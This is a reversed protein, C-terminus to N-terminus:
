RRARVIPITRVQTTTQTGVQLSVRVEISRLRRLAARQSRPFTARLTLSEGGRVVARRVVSVGRGAAELRLTGARGVTIAAGVGKTRLHEYSLGSAGFITIDALPARSQAVTFTREATATGGCDGTATVKVTAQGAAFRHSVSPGTATTGDGLDWRLTGTACQSLGTSAGFDVDTATLTVPQASEAGAVPAIGGLSVTPTRLNRVSAIQAPTLGALRASMPAADLEQALALGAARTGALTGTAGDSTIGIWSVFSATEGPGLTLNRWGWGFQDPRFSSFQGADDLPKAGGSAVGYLVLDAARSAGPQGWVSAVAPKAVTAFISTDATVAWRDAASPVTTGSSNAVFGTAFGTGLKGVTVPLAGNYRLDGVIVNTTVPQSGPNTVTDLFRAGRADSPVFIRRQVTVGGMNVQAFALQRGGLESTCGNIDTDSYRTAYSPVGSGVFLDGWYDFADIARANPTQVEGNEIVAYSPPVQGSPQSFGIDYTAGANDVPAGSGASLRCSAATAGAPMALTAVAVVLLGSCLSRFRPM